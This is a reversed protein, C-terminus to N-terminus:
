RPDDARHGDDGQAPRPSAQASLWAGIALSWLSQVIVVAFMGHVDLRFWGFALGLAPLVGALLGYTGIWRAPGREGLLDLSWLAIAASMGFVGTVACANAFEHGYILAPMLAIPADAHGAIAVSVFGNNLAAGTMAVVGFQYALWGARVKFRRLGRLRAFEGLCVCVILMAAILAGHVWENMGSVAHMQQLAAAPDHARVEPHHAMVLVSLLSLAVLVKGSYYASADRSPVAAARIEVSM